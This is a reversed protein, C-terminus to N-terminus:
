LPTGWSPTIGHWRYTVLAHPRQGKELSFSGSTSQSYMLILRGCSPPILADVLDGGIVPHDSHHGLSRITIRNLTQLHWMGLSASGDRKFLTPVPPCATTQRVAANTIRRTYQWHRWQSRLKPRSMSPMLCCSCSLLFVTGKKSYSLTPGISVM